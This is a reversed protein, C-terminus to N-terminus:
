QAVIEKVNMAISAFKKHRIEVSEGKYLRRWYLNFHLNEVLMAVTDEPVRCICDRNSNNEKSDADNSNTEM